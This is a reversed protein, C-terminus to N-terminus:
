IKEFGFVNTWCYKDLLCIGFVTKDNSYGISLFENEIIIYSGIM